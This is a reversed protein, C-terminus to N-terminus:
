KNYIIKIESKSPFIKKTAPTPKVYVDERSLKAIVSRVNKGLEKALSEVASKREADSEASTYVEVMREVAEPTYNVAKAKTM